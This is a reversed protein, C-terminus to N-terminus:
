EDTFHAAQHRGQERKPLLTCLDLLAVGVTRVSRAGGDGASFDPLDPVHGQLSHMLAKRCVARPLAQKGKLETFPLLEHFVASLAARPIPSSGSLGVVSGCPCQPQFGFTVPSQLGVLCLLPLLSSSCCALPPPCAWRYWSWSAGGSACPTRQPFM